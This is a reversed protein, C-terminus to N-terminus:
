CKVVHVTFGRNLMGGSGRGDGFGNQAVDKREHSGVYVTICTDKELCAKLSNHMILSSEERM